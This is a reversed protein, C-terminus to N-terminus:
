SSPFFESGSQLSSSLFREAVPPTAGLDDAIRHTIGYLVQSSDGGGLTSFDVFSIPRKQNFELLPVSRSMAM